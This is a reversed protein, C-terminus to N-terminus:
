RFKLRISFCEPPVILLHEQTSSKTGEDWDPEIDARRVRDADIVIGNHGSSIKM